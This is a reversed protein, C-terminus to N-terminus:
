GRGAHRRSREPARLVEALLVAPSHVGPAELEGYRVTCMRDLRHRDGPLLEGAAAPGPYITAAVRLPDLMAAHVRSLAVLPHDPFHQLFNM